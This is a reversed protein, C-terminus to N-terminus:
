NRILIAVVLLFFFKRLITMRPSEPTPLVVSRWYYRLPLTFWFELGVIPASKLLFSTIISSLTTVSWIQSM